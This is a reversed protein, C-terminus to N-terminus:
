KKKNKNKNKKFKEAEKMKKAHEKDSEIAHKNLSDWSKGEESLASDGEDEGESEIEEEEDDDYESESSEIEEEEYEPDPNDEEDEEEEDSLNEALFNWCGNQVFTDPDEKITKIVNPWNMNFHGEAFFIDNEDAWTKLMDLNEMPIVEIKKIPRSLDKFIFAMDFTKLSQSVREFYILNIDNISIVFFPSESLSILCNQTPFLTVNSKAHRGTFELERFPVEFKIEGIEEVNKSFNIFEKNINEIKKREKLEMDYEDYDNGRGKMNLDDAQSGIERCFQIDSHKKKGVFISNKLNFHILAILENECTQLFAHKINNYIIDVKEGKTSIFRFGNVHAELVGQTKKGSIAPKIFIEPLFIKKEKRIKIKEQEIIDEKEKNEQEKIKYDRIMDKIQNIIKQVDGGNKYKYSIERIFVPNNYNEILGLDNGSIPIVFNIRLITFNNDESKSTNKILGIHFPVMHKFIPLFITFNDKSIFIEGKKLEPPFQKISDFCKLYSYNKKKVTQEDKLFNEGEENLRRKFEENKQRLLEEQHEKRKEANIFKEDVKQGMHRTVRVTPDYHKESGNEEEEKNESNNKLEYHIDNLGKPSKDTCNIVDGKENIYITDGLQMVYTDNKNKLKDLSLYIFLAMGKQLLVKSDETIRLSENSSEIGVGYGMCEPICESLKEDKSIIFEKIKTYIEGLSVKKSLSMTEKLLSIMKEFAALLIKYQTQQEKNSDIMFTRIVQSNYEKYAAFSKCIIIDSSLKNKDSQVFPDWTYKGGSQIVPAFKLEFLTPDAKLISNKEVFKKNFSEKETLNRITSSIKEHTIIKEDEVDDEFEKTLYTLLHCSYKSSINIFNLENKDKIQFIEDVLLPSDVLNIEPMNEVVKYFEDVTKGLGKEEKIYGLNISKKNMEKLLNELITKIEPTNDNPPIRLITKIEPANIGSPKKISEIMMKKKAALFFCVNKPSFLIISDSFDYSLIYEHLKSTKKQSSQENDQVYKGRIFIFADLNKFVSEDNKDSDGFVDYIHQIHTYFREPDIKCDSSM